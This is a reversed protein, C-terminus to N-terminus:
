PNFSIIYILGLVIEPIYYTSFLHFSDKNLFTQSQSNMQETSQWEMPNQNAHNRYAILLIIIKNIPIYYWKKRWCSKLNKEKDNTKWLNIMTHRTYNEKHIAQKPNILIYIKEDYQSIKTVM